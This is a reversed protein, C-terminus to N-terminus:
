ENLMVVEVPWNYECLQKYNIQHRMMLYGEILEVPVQESLIELAHMRGSAIVGEGGQLGKDGLRHAMHKGFSKEILQTKKDLWLFLKGDDLVYM